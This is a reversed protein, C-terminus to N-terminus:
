SKKKFKSATAHIKCMDKMRYIPLLQEYPKEKMKYLINEAAKIGIFHLKVQSNKWFEFFNTINIVANELSIVQIAISMPWNKILNNPNNSNYVSFM